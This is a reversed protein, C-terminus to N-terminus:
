NYYGPTISIDTTLRGLEGQDLMNRFHPNGHRAWSDAINFTSQAIPKNDLIVFLIGNWMENFDDYDYVQLGLTPDGVSVRGNDIGKVVVFHMYGKRNILVIAPIGVATLKSLPARYGEAEYGLSTLYKKMDLMSFGERHIAEKDGDEYMAKLVDKEDVTQGYHYTLLTALAASGCSYDFEQRVVNRFRSDALTKFSKIRYDGGGGNLQFAAAQVGASSLALCLFLLGGLRFASYEDAIRRFAHM